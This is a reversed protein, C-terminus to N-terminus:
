FVWNAGTIIRREPVLLIRVSIGHSIFSDTGASDM